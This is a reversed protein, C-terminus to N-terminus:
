IFISIEKPFLQLSFHRVSTVKETDNSWPQSFTNFIHTTLRMKHLVFLPSSTKLLEIITAIMVNATYEKFNAPKQSLCTEVFKFLNDENQDENESNVISRLQEELQAADQCSLNQAITPWLLELKEIEIGQYEMAITDVEGTFFLCILNHKWM